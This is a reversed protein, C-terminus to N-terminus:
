KNIIIFPYNQSLYTFVFKTLLILKGVLQQKENNLTKELEEITKKNSTLLDKKM